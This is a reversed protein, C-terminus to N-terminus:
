KKITNPPPRRSGREPLKPLPPPPANPKIVAPKPPYRPERQLKPTEASKIQKDNNNRAPLPPRPRAPSPITRSPPPPPPPRIALLTNMMLQKTKTSTSKRSIPDLIKDMLNVILVYPADTKKLNELKRNMSLEKLESNIISKSEGKANLIAKALFERVSDYKQYYFLQKWKSNQVLVKLYKTSFWSDKELKDGSISILNVKKTLNVWEDMLSVSVVLPIYTIEKAVESAIVRKNKQSITKPIPINNNPMNNNDGYPKLYTM